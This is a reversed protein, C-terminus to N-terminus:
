IEMRDCAGGTPMPSLPDQPTPIPTGDPAVEYGSKTKYVVAHEVGNDKDFTYETQKAIRKQRPKPTPM